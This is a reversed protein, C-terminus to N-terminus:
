HNTSWNMRRDVIREDSPVDSYYRYQGEPDRYSHQVIDVEPIQTELIEKRRSYRDNTINSSTENKNYDETYELQSRSNIYFENPLEEHEREDDNIRAVLADKPFVSDGPSEGGREEYAGETPVAWFVSADANMTQTVGKAYGGELDVHRRDEVQFMQVSAGPSESEAGQYTNAKQLARRFSEMKVYQQDNLRQVYAILAGLVVVIIAAFLAMELIAQGRKLKLRQM